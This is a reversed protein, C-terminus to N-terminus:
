GPPTFPWLLFVAVDWAVHSIINLWLSRFRQYMLGWYVGCVLAAGILMLNGTAVHVGAYGLVALVFGWRGYRAVFQRQLYGRWFIEEGPGIICVMLVAMLWVPAEHKLGYIRGIDGESRSLIRASLENGVYFVGYLVAASLLGAALTRPWGMSPRRLLVRMGDKDLMDALVCLGAAAAALGLWFGLGGNMFIVAFAVAACAAAGWPASARWPKYARDEAM